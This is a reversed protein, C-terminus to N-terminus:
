AGALPRGRVKRTAALLDGLRDDPCNLLAHALPRELERNAVVEAVVRDLDVDEFRIM